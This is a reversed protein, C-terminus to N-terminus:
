CLKNLKLKISYAWNQMGYEADDYVMKYADRVLTNGNQELIKSWYNLILEFAQIEIPNRGMEKRLVCSPTQRDLWFTKKIFDNQIIESNNNNINLWVQVGYFLVYRVLTDFLKFRIQNSHIKLKILPKWLAAM